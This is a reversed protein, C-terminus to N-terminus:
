SAAGAVAAADWWLASRQADGRRTTARLVPLVRCRCNIINGPSGKPDGPRRLAEAGSGNTKPVTWLEGLKVRVGNMAVHSWVDHLKVGRVFEDRSTAWEFEDVAGTQQYGEMAAFNLASLSETRAITATNARRVTFVEQVRNSMEAITQGQQVSDAIAMRLLRRTTENPVNIARDLNEKLFERVARAQMDFSLARALLYDPLLDIAGQGTSEVLRELFTKVDARDQDNEIRAVIDEVEPIIVRRQESYVAHLRELVRDRQGDIISNWLVTGRAEARELQLEAADALSDRTLRKSASVRPKSRNGKDTNNAGAPPSAPVVDAAPDATSSPSMPVGRPSQKKLSELEDPTLDEDGLKERGENTLLV